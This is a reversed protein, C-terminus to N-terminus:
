CDIAFGMAECVEHLRVPSLSVIKRTLNSAKVTRINDLTLVCEAPMGDEANLRVETPIGRITSTAPVAVLHTLVGIGANRSLILHPRAKENPAEHWWIDGRQIHRKTV